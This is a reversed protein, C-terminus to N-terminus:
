LKYNLLASSLPESQKRAIESILTYKAKKYAVSALESSDYSGIRKRRGDVSIHAIFAEDRVCWHVGKPHLGRSAGSDTFLNNIEQSVFICNEPSYLKSGQHIIDKDLHKGQWDQGIMWAKFNSFTLWENIVFCKKYTPSEKKSKISYCRKIMGQWRSYYPCVFRKKNIVFETKYSSDNVGIGYVLKRKLLSMKSATIEQFM